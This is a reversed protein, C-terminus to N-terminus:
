DGDSEFPWDAALLAELEQWVEPLSTKLAHGAQDPVQIVRSDVSWSEKGPGYAKIEVELRDDQVDVGAVLLSAESGVKYMSFPTTM